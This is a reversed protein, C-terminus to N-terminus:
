SRIRILYPKVGIGRGDSIDQFTLEVVHEEQTNDIIDIDRAYPWTATYFQHEAEELTTGSEWALFRGLKEAFVVRQESNTFDHHNSVEMVKPYANDSFLYFMKGNIISGWFTSAEITNSWTFGGSDRGADKAQQFVAVDAKNGQKVQYEVMRQVIDLPFGSIDGKLDSKKVKYM